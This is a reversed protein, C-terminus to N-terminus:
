RGAVQLAEHQQITTGHWPRWTGNLDDQHDKASPYEEHWEVEVRKQYDWVGWGWGGYIGLLTVVPRKWSRKVRFRPPKTM